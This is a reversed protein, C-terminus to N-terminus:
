QMNGYRILMSVLNGSDECFDVFKRWCSDGLVPRTNNDVARRTYEIVRETAQNARPLARVATNSHQSTWDRDEMARRLLGEGEKLFMQDLAKEEHLPINEGGILYHWGIWSHFAHYHRDQWSHTLRGLLVFVSCDCCNNTLREVIKEQTTEVFQQWKRIVEHLRETEGEETLAYGYSLAHAEPNKIFTGWDDSAVNADAINKALNPGVGKQALVSETIVRHTAGGFLGSPDSRFVPNSRVYQYLNMGDAYPGSPGGPDRMAFVRSGAAFIIAIVLAFNLITTRNMTM